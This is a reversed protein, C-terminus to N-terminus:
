LGPLATELESMCETSKSMPAMTSMPVQGIKVVYGLRLPTQCFLPLVRELVIWGTGGPFKSQKIARVAMWMLLRVNETAPMVCIQVKSTFVMSLCTQFIPYSPSISICFRFNMRLHLHRSGAQVRRRKYALPLVAYKTALVHQNLVTRANQGFLFMCRKISRGQPCWHICDILMGAFVDCLIALLSNICFEGILREECSCDIHTIILM